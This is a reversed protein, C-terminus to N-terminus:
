RMVGLLIACDAVLGLEELDVLGDELVLLVLFATGPFDPMGVQPGKGSDSWPSLYRMVNM